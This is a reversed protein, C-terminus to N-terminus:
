PNQWANPWLTHLVVESHQCVFMIYLVPSYPEYFWWESGIFSIHMHLIHSHISSDICCMAYILFTKILCKENLLQDTPPSINRLSHWYLSIATRYCFIYRFIANGRYIMTSRGLTLVETKFLLYARLIKWNIFIKTRKGIYISKEFKSIFGAINVINVVGTERYFRLTMKYRLREIRAVVPWNRKCHEFVRTWIGTSMTVQFVL